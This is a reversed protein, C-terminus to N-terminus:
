AGLPIHILNTTDASAFAGDYVPFHHIAAARSSRESAHPQAGLELDDRRARGHRASELQERRIPGERQELAHRGTGLLDTGRQERMVDIPNQMAAAADPAVAAQAARGHECQQQTARSVVRADHDAHAAVIAARELRVRPDGAISALGKELWRVGDCGKLSQTARLERM